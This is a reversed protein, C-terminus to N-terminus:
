NKKTTIEIVGNNGKDGYKKIASKGKLVNIMEITDSDLKEMEKKTTKKGDIYILPEGDRDGTIYAFTKNDNTHIKYIDKHDGNNFIFENKKDGSHIKITSGKKTKGDKDVVWVYNPSNGSQGIEIKGTESNYIIAFSNIPTDNSIAYNTTGKKSSIDVKISTIENAENRKIGSFKVELSYDNKLTNKVKNLDEKSSSKDVIFEIIKEGKKQFIINESPNQNTKTDQKIRVVEETNFSWLFLSLLPLIVTIKWLKKSQSSQKNLMIIRKKILSQYFNNTITSYNNSSVRLLTLQYEKKSTIQHIAERDAIFELNQELNKKYFWAFPNVWQFILLLNMLILDLTHFQQVHIKEHKLIMDLEEASHLAPNYVITKFFSFPAIDQTVEIFNFGDKKVGQHHTLLKKLSLLQLGFRSLFILAGLGYLIFGILWWNITEPIVNESAPLHTETVYFVPNKIFKITTFEVFPLLISTIIGVLLFHRNITFFTDKRLLLFYVGYFISLLISAKFLYILFTEM